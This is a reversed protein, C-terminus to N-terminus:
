FDGLYNVPVEMNPNIKNAAYVRHMGDSIAPNENYDWDLTVPTKVGNKKISEYHTEVGEPAPRNHTNHVRGRESQKIKFEIFKEVSKFSSGVFDMPVYKKPDALERAPIFLALQGSLHHARAM